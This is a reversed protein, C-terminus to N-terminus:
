FFILATHLPERGIIKKPHANQCKNSSNWILMSNQMKQCWYQGEFGKEGKKNASKASVSITKGVHVTSFM